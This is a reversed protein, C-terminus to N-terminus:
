FFMIHEIYYIIRCKIFHASGALIEGAPFHCASQYESQIQPDAWHEQGQHINPEDRIPEAAHTGAGKAGGAGFAEEVEAGEGEFASAAEWVRCIDERVVSEVDGPPSCPCSWDSCDKLLMQVSCLAIMIWKFNVYCKLPTSLTCSEKLPPVWYLTLIFAWYKFLSFYGVNINQVLFQPSETGLSWHGSCVQRCMNVTYQLHATNQVKIFKRFKCISGGCVETKQVEAIQLRMKYDVQVIEESLFAM